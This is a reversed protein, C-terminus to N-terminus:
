FATSPDSQLHPIPHSPILMSQAPKSVPNEEETLYLYAYVRYEFM